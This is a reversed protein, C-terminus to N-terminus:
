GGCVDTNVQYGIVEYDSFDNSDGIAALRLLIDEFSETDGAAEATPRQFSSRNSSHPAHQICM